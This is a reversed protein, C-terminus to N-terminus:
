SKRQSDKKLERLDEVLRVLDSPLTGNYIGRIKRNGDILYFSETHLFTDNSDLDARFSDRALDYIEDKEGTLFFWTGSKANFAEAYKALAEVTDLEPTVSISLLQVDDNMVSDQIRMMGASLRPCLSPCQILFLNVVSIKGSLQDATLAKGQQNLLNFEGIMAISDSASGEDTMWVPTLDEVTFYPIASIREESERGAIAVVIICLLFAGFAAMIRKAVMANM